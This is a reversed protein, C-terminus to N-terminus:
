AGSKIFAHKGMVGDQNQDYSASFVSLAGDHKFISDVWEIKYLVPLQRYSSLIM